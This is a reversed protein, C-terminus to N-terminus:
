KFIVELKGKTPKKNFYWRAYWIFENVKRKKFKEKKTKNGIKKLRTFHRLRVSTFKHERIDIEELYDSFDGKCNFDCIVNNFVPLEVFFRGDKEQVDDRTFIRLKKSSSWAQYKPYLKDWRKRFSYYILFPFLFVTAMVGMVNFLPKLSFLNEQACLNYRVETYNTKILEPYDSICESYEQLASKEYSAELVSYTGGFFYVALYGIFFIIAWYMVITSLMSGKLQTKKDPYSFSIKPKDGYKINIRANMTTNGDKKINAM